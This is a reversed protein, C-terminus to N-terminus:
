PKKKFYKSSSVVELRVGEPKPLHRRTGRNCGHLATYYSNKDELYVRWHERRERKEGNALGLKFFASDDVAASSRRVFRITETHWNVLPPSFNFHNVAVDERSRRCEDGGPLKDRMGGASRKM